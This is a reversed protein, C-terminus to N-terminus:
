KSRRNYKYREKRYKVINELTSLEAINMGKTLKAMKEIFTQKKRGM